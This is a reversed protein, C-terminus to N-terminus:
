CLYIWYVINTYESKWYTDISFERKPPYNGPSPAYTACMHFNSIKADDQQSLRISENQAYGPNKSSRHTKGVDNTESSWMPHYKQIKCVYRLSDAYLSLYSFTNHASPKDDRVFIRTLWLSSQEFCLISFFVDLLTKELVFSFFFSFSALVYSCTVFLCFKM